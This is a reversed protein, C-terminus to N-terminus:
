PRISATPRGLPGQEVTERLTALRYPKQLFADPREMGCRESTEAQDFGSALLVNVDPRLRRLEALTALGDMVPMRSTLVVFVIHEGLREFLEM